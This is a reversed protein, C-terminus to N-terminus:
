KAENSPNYGLWVSQNQLRKPFVTPNVMAKGNRWSTFKRRFGVRRPTHLGVPPRQMHEKVRGFFRLGPYGHLQAKKWMPSDDWIM